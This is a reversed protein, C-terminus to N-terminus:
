RKTQPAFCKNVEFGPRYFYAVSYPNEWDIESFRQKAHESLPVQLTEIFQPSVDTKSAACSAVIWNLIQINRNGGHNATELLHHYYSKVWTLDGGSLKLLM